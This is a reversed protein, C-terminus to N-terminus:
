FLEAIERRGRTRLGTEIGVRFDQMVVSATIKLLSRCFLFLSEAFSWVGVSGPPWLSSVCYISVTLRTPESDCLM